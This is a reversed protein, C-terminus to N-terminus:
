RMAGFERVVRPASQARMPHEIGFSKELLLRARNGRLNFCFNQALESMM